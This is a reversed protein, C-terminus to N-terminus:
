RAFCCKLLCDLSYLRNLRFSFLEQLFYQARQKRQKFLRRVRFDAGCYEQHDEPRQSDFLRTTHPDSHGALRQVEELPVGQELLDTITTVRFSRPSFSNRCGPM